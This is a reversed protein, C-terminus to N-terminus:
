FYKIKIPRRELIFDIHEVTEKPKVEIEAQEPSILRYERPVKELDVKVEYKGPYAYEFQYSGDSFSLTDRYEPMMYIRVNPVPIDIHKDFVGNKDVDVYVKGKVLSTTIISFHVESTKLPKVVIKKTSDGKILMDVPLNRMDLMTKREGPVVKNILAVGNANTEQGRGNVIYALVNELGEENGDRIGNGNIDEFVYVKVRGWKKPTGFDFVHRAAFLFSWDKTTRYKDYLDMSGVSYTLSLTTVPSPKFDVGGAFSLVSTEDAMDQYTSVLRADASFGLYPLIYYKGSLATNWRSVTPSGDMSLQKTKTLDQYLRIYSGHLKPFSKYITASYTHFFMSGTSTSLPDMRYYLWGLNLSATGLSKYYNVRYSKYENGSSDQKGGRTLNSNYGWGCSVSQRWPLRLNVGSSVGRSHSTPVDEFAVNDRNMNGSINLTLNDTIKYNTAINGGIFDQYTLPISLSAYKDGVYEFSSNISFREDTFKIGSRLDYDSVIKDRKNDPMYTCQAFTNYFNINPRIQWDSDLLYVFNNKPYNTLGHDEFFETRNDTFLEVASLRFKDIDIWDQRSAFLNGFYKVSGGGGIRPIYVSNMEGVWAHTKVPADRYVVEAGWYAQSQSRLGPLRMYNDLLKIGTGKKFFSLHQADEKFTRKEGAVYDRMSLHGYTDVGYMKGKLYYEHYRTRIGELMDHFYKFGTDLKLDIDPAYEKPLMEERMDRPLRPKARETEIRRIREKEEIPIVPKAISFTTFEPKKERSIKVINTDPFYEYFIGLAEQLSDLNLMFNDKYIALPSSIVLFPKKNVLAEREGLNMELPTGDYGIIIISTDSLNLYTLGLRQTFENVPVWIDDGRQMCPEDFKFEMDEFHFIIDPSSQYDSFDYGTPVKKKPEIWEGKIEKPPKAIVSPTEIEKEAIEFDEREKEEPIPQEEEPPKAIVSPTEIEKEAIEFDEREKEEPIRQEERSPVKLIKPKEPKAKRLNRIDQIRRKISNIFDKLGRAINSRRKSNALYAKESERRGSNRSSVIFEKIKKNMKTVYRRLSIKKWRRASVALSPIKPVRQWLLFGIIEEQHLIDFPIVREKQLEEPAPKVKKKEEALPPKIFPEKLSPKEKLEVRIERELRDIKEQCEKLEDELMERTISIRGKMEPFEKEINETMKLARSYKKLAILYRQSESDQSAKELIAMIENIKKQFAIEKARGKDLRSMQDRGSIEKKEILNLLLKAERHQPNEDLISNIKKKAQNYKKLAVYFRKENKDKDASDILRYVEKLKEKCSFESDIEQEIKNIESKCERIKNELLEKLLLIRKNEPEKIRTNEIFAMAEEYKQLALMYKKNKYDVAGKEILGLIDGEGENVQAYLNSWPGFSIFLSMVLSILTLLAYRKM